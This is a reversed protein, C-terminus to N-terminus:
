NLKFKYILGSKIWRGPMPVFQIEYYDTNFLNNATIFFNFQKISYSIKLDTLFYRDANIRDAFRFKWNINLGPLFFDHNINFLLQHRLYNLVYKSIQNNTDIERTLYTYNLGINSIPFTLIVAKINAQWGLEFGSTIAKTLNQAYWINDNPNLMWDILNDELRKFIATNFNNVGYHYNAGLEYSLSIESNLNKNGINVPSSYYLETFTPVRFAKNVSIHMRLNPTFENVLDVGPWFKIGRKTYSYTSIGAIIKASKEINFQHEVSGGLANREHRGLNNSNITEYIEDLSVTTVGNKWTYQSQIEAHYVNTEHTNHYFAPKDRKLMFDDKGNRWSIIPKFLFIESQYTWNTQLFLTKVEEWQNPFAPTYFSNAGFNKDLWSASFNIRNKEKIYSIDSSLNLTNFDTAERYGDSASKSFSFRSYFNKYPMELSAAGQYYRNQGGSLSISAGQNKSEKLIINVVGGFANPGYIRSGPGKLVEVREIDDLSYPINLSHHGTQPDNMRIGNILLLTQEYTSGRISLDAQVGAPGRQQLDVSPIYQLLEQVSQVPMNKIEQATIVMISRAVLPLSTPIRSATVTIQSNFNVFAISDQAKIEIITILIFITFYKISHILRNQQL